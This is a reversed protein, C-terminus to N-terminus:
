GLNAAIHMGVLSATTYIDAGKGQEIGEEANQEIGYEIYECNNSATHQEM